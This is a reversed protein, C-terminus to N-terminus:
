AAKAGDEKAGYAGFVRALQGAPAQLVGAVKTAPAQLLGIIKGRLADLSPLTALAQVGAVDLVNEGLAGGVITLKENNKAFAAVVKAAAVPDESYAIATPGSFLSGLATFSTGELARLTLRNKTVKYSAGAARIKRRLDTVEAVTLGSQRTVVVLNAGKFTQNLEAIAEAKESRNM